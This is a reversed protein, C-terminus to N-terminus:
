DEYTGILLYPKEINLENCRGLQFNFDDIAHQVTLVIPKGHMNYSTNVLAKATDNMRELVLAVTSGDRDVVQPRGSYLEKDPYKHMVGSYLDCYDITYDYTLIM